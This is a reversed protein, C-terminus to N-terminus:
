ESFVGVLQGVRLLRRRAPIVMVVGAEELIRAERVMLRGGKYSIVGGKLHTFEPKRIRIETSLVATAKLPWAKKLGQAQRLAPSVLLPFITNVAMPPGPLAFYLLNDLRGCLTGKGPRLSLHDFIVEGGMQKFVAATLDYKGPGMGGTSILITQEDAAIGRRLAARLAEPTDAALGLDLPVAGARRILAALLLNNSNRRKGASPRLETTLESGTCFFAARPAKYVQINEQGDASLYILHSTNVREGRKIIVRGRSLEGGQPQIFKNRPLPGTSLENNDERTLEFPIVRETGSPLLAGTMIRVAEGARLSRCTTDGAATEAKIIYREDKIPGLAYGDMAAASFHPIPRSCRVSAASVLDLAETLSATETGCTTIRTRIAAQAASLSLM